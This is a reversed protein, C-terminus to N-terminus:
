IERQRLLNRRWLKWNGGVQLKDHLFQSVLGDVERKVTIRYQLMYSARSAAAARFICLTMQTWEILPIADTM